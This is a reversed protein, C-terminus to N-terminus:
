ILKAFSQLNYRRLLDIKKIMNPDHQQEYSIDINMNLNSNNSNIGGGNFCRTLRDYQYFNYEVISIFFYEYRTLM